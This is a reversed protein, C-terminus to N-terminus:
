EKEYFKKAWPILDLYENYVQQTIDKCGDPMEWSGDNVLEFTYGRMNKMMVMAPFPNNPKICGNGSFDTPSCFCENEEADYAYWYIGM